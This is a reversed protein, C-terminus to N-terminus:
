YNYDSKLRNGDKSGYNEILDDNVKIEAKEYNPPNAHPDYGLIKLMPALKAMDKVADKPIKGVWKSLAELNIARKVQDTSREVNSLRIGHTKNIFDEHHLVNENWPLDLFKLIKEMMKKPELVLKEYNVLMCKDKGLLECQVFMGKIMRNWKQMSMRYDNLDFGTVTVKREIISHVTARGDRVMFIYKMNPFLESVLVGYKLTLPDKNCFRNAPEGHSAIVELCFQAVANSLVPKDVGAEQLRKWEVEQKMWNAYMQILRPVVRTEQGCRVDPHADLMARMLTTGSRPVGGIFILPM